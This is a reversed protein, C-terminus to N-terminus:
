KGYHKNQSKSEPTAELGDLLANLSQHYARSGEDAPLGSAQSADISRFGTLVLVGSSKLRDFLDAMSAAVASYVNELEELSTAAAPGSKDAVVIAVRLDLTHSRDFETIERHFHQMLSLVAVERTLCQGM